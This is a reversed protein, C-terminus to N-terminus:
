GRDVSLLLEELQQNAKELLLQEMINLLPKLNNMAAAAFEVEDNVSAINQQHHKSGESCTFWRNFPGRVTGEHGHPYWGVVKTSKSCLKKLRRIDALTYDGIKPDEFEVEIDGDSTRLRERGM